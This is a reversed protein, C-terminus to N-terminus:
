QVVLTAFGVNNMTDTARVVLTRGASATEVRLLFQEHRGDLIGDLPFASQWRDADISYELRAIPSDTDRVDVPIAILGGERRSTGITVIPPTNDIDFSASEREGKLASDAPNSKHDSAVVKITYSGNPVTATDWVMISETV